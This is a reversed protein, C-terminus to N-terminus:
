RHATGRLGATVQGLLEERPLSPPLRDAVERFFGEAVLAVAEDRPVGRTRLYFLTEEDIRGVAAAHTCRVEDALIELEPLADARAGRALLLARAAQFADSRIAGPEIRILGHFVSRGGPAVTAKYLVESVTDARAHEELLRSEHHSGGGVHAMGLLLARGRSGELRVSTEERLLGRYTALSLHLLDAGDALKCGLLQLRPAGGGRARSLVVARSGPGLVLELGDLCPERGTGGAVLELQLESDEGTVALVRLARPSGRRRLVARGRSGKELLLFSLSARAANLAAAFGAEPGLGGGLEALVEGPAEEMPGWRVGDAEVEIGASDRVAEGSLLNEFEFPEPPTYRWSEDGERPLGAEPLFVEARRRFSLIPGAEAM